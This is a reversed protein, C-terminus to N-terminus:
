HYHFLTRRLLYHATAIPHNTISTFTRLIRISHNLKFVQFIYSVYRVCRPVRVTSRDNITLNEM